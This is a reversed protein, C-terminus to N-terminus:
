GGRRRSSNRRASRRFAQRDSRDSRLSCRKHKATQVYLQDHDQQQEDRGQHRHDARKQHGTDCAEINVVKVRLHALREALAVGGKDVREARLSRLLVAHLANLSHDLGIGTREANVPAVAVVVDEVGSGARKEGATIFAALGKFLRLVNEGGAVSADAVLAVDGCVVHVDGNGNGAAVVAKDNIDSVVAAGDGRQIGLQQEDNQLRKQDTKQNGDREREEQCFRDDVRDFLQGLPSLADGLTIEVLCQIHFRRILDTDQRRGEVVHRGDQVFRQFGDLVLAVLKVREKQVHRVAHDSVVSVARQDMAIGCGGRQEAALTLVAPVALKELRHAGEGMHDGQLPAVKDFGLKGDPVAADLNTKGRKGILLAATNQDNQVVHGLVALCLFAALLEDGINGM